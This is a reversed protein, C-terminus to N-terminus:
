NEEIIQKIHVRIAQLAAGLVPLDPNDMIRIALGTADALADARKRLKEITTNDLEGAVFVAQTDLFVAVFRVLRELDEVIAGDIGAIASSLIEGAAGTSGRYVERDIVIGAGVTIPSTQVQLHVLNSVSGGAAMMDWAAACNADNDVVVPLDPVHQRIEAAVRPMAREFYTSEAIKGHIDVVSSVAIGTGFYDAYRHQNDEIRDIIQAVVEETGMGAAAFRRRSVINGGFDVVGFTIEDEKLYIGGFYGYDPRLALIDAKKGGHPGSAGKGVRAVLGFDRLSRVLNSTTSPQLRTQVAIEAQSIGPSSRLLGLVEMRNNFKQDRQNM